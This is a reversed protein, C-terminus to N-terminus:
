LPFDTFELNPIFPFLRVQERLSTKSHVENIFDANEGSPAAGTARMEDYVAHHAKIYKEITEESKDKYLFLSDAPALSM